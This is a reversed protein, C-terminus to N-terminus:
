KERKFRDALKSAVLGATLIACIVCLSIATPIHIHSSLIMKTGIYAMLVVLSIKLYRFTEMVAALAFYLSRLGLIAFVNSTFVIFPDVTIALIAPISDVAFIVDSGEVTILVLFLPTMAVRGNLRSFFKEGQLEPTVPFMKRAVRILLGKEPNIDEHKSLLMKAATVLLLGGFVYIMWDLRQILATGAAIMGGRLVLAGMIGWFLVRHQLYLPTKFYQFILAIVFINDLSLSKEIIYGTLFQLAAQKGNLAPGAITAIGFWRNEYIFYIFVNFLLSLCIWFLSWYLAEKLSVAHAKKNFVGLDLALMGLIFLVFGIWLWVM